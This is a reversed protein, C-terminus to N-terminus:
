AQQVSAPVDPALTLILGKGRFRGTLPILEMKFRKANRGECEFQMHVDDAFHEAVRDLMDEQFYVDLSDGINVPHDALKLAKAAKNALVIIMERSVGLIPLSLEELVAQSLQLAQNQVELTQTRDKVATELNENIQKLENNKAVIKEHLQKNAQILDYQELAQRIELKLNHDNWPKLFFKYINGENIAETISDVETYGTLIIRLVDPYLAKVEKLFETGNMGPMRQDSIVIQVDNDALLKLGDQGNGATLLRYEEKRVLRKISNIISQEDDVCLVTHQCTNM